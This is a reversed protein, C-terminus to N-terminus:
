KKNLRTVRREGREIIVFQDNGVSLFEILYCSGGTLDQGLVSRIKTDCYLWWTIQAKNVPLPGGASEAITGNCGTRSCCGPLISFVDALGPWYWSWRFPSFHLFQCPIWDASSLQGSARPQELESSLFIIRSFQPTVTVQTRGQGALHKTQTAEGWVTLGETTRWHKKRLISDQM